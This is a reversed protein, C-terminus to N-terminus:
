QQVSHYIMVIMVELVGEWYLQSREVRADTPLPPAGALLHVHLKLAASEGTLLRQTM